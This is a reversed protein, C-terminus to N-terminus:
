QHTWVEIRTHIQSAHGETNFPLSEVLPKVKLGLYEKLYSFKSIGPLETRDIEETFTNWFRTFYTASGNFRSIELKPLKVRLLLSKMQSLKEKYESSLKLKAEHLKPEDAIALNM